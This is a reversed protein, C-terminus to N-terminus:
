GEEHDKGLERRLDSLNVAIATVQDQLTNFDSVNAKSNLSTANAKQNLKNTVEDKTFYESLDVSGSGGSALATIVLDTIQQEQSETLGIFRVKELLNSLTSM